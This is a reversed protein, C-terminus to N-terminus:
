LTLTDPFSIIAINLKINNSVTKFFKSFLIVNQTAFPEEALRPERGELEYLVKKRRGSQTDAAYAAKKKPM